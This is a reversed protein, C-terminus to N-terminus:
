EGRSFSCLPASVAPPPPPLSPIPAATCLTHPPPPHRPDAFHLLFPSRRSHLSPLTTPSPSRTCVNSATPLHRASNLQAAKEDWAATRSYPKSRPRGGRRFAPHEEDGPDILPTSEAADMARRPQGSRARRPTTLALVAGSSFWPRACCPPPSRSRRRLAPPCWRPPPGPRHGPQGFRVRAAFALPSAAPGDVSSPAAASVGHSKINSVSFFGCRFVSIAKFHRGGVGPRVGRQPPRRRAAAPAPALGASQPAPGAARAARAGRPGPARARAAPWPRQRHRPPRARPPPPPWGPGRGDRAAAAPRGRRPVAPAARRRRSPGRRGGTRRCRWGGGAAAAPGFRANKSGRRGRAGRAPCPHEPPRNGAGPPPLPGLTGRSGGPRGAGAVPGAGGPRPRRGGRGGGCCRSAEATEPQKPGRKPGAPESGAASAPPPPCGPCGRGM